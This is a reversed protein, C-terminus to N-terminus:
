GTIYEAGGDVDKPSNKFEDAIEVKSQELWDIFAENLDIGLEVIRKVFVNEHQWRKQNEQRHALQRRYVGIQEEIIDMARSKDGFCFFVFRMLFPDRM